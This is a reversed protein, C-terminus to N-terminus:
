GMARYIYEVQVVGRSHQQVEVLGRSVLLNLMEIDRPTAKNPRGIAQAIESRTLWAKKARLTNLIVTALPTLTDETM